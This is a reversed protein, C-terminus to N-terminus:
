LVDESSPPIRTYIILDLDIKLLIGRDDDITTCFVLSKKRDFM